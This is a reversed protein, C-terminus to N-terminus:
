AIIANSPLGSVSEALSPPKDDSRAAPAAPRRGKCKQLRSLRKLPNPALIQAFRPTDVVGLAAARSL